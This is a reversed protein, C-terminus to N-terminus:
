TPERNNEWDRMAEQEDRMQDDRAQDTQFDCDCDLKGCVWHPTNVLISDKQPIYKVYLHYEGLEPPDLHKGGFDEDGWPVGSQPKMYDAQQKLLEEFLDM